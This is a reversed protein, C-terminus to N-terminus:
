VINRNVYEEKQVKQLDSLYKHITKNRNMNQSKM